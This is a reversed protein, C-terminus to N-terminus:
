AIVYLPVQVNVSVDTVLTAILVVHVYSLPFAMVNRVTVYQSRPVNAHADLGMVVTQAIVLQFNRRKMIIMLRSCKLSMTVYKVTTMKTTSSVNLM